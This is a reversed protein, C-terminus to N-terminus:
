EEDIACHLLLKELNQEINQTNENPELVQKKKKTTICNVTIDCEQFDDLNVSQTETISNKFHTKYFTRRQASQTKYVSFNDQFDIIMPHRETHDKRFIRGVIQELKGSENKTSNKLHGVFKKPTILILTDLDRESVGESFAAYSALIVDSSKSKELDKMKMQGLFLGYTFTVSVDNDLMKKLTVLHNRRDSLVLIRRKQSICDKLIEIILKNRKPMDILDSLMSTFQIQSQGTMRNVVTIEKYDESNIQLLRIIPSLGKRTSEAKYVIDGLHYKFVYECGDSRQPTASLGISYKCCLKGLVQSFVRSSTNHCNHVIFGTESYSGNQENQQQRKNVIYNHNDQVELDYVFNEGYADVNKINKVICTVKSYVIKKDIYTSIHDETCIDKAEKWGDKTLFRHNETCRVNHTETIVEILNDNRKRFVNLLKKYEFTGTKENFTKIDPFSKGKQKFYYLTDISLNGYSTVVNTDEPFCEDTVVCGFDSFLADPYDIRALSQLMALVIDKDEVSVNKQGQIFGVRAGPLFRQIESEWQKMLPIKNVVVITKTKLQSLLYIASISKGGGTQLSLIGAGDSSHLSELMKGTADVQHPYLVGTFEIDPNDWKQGIYNTMTKEPSGYRKIGYVKPMYFKNKTEIYIPFTIDTKLYKDDQLPRATLEKKLIKLEEPPISDKLLVYGRKSLYSGKPPQPLQSM